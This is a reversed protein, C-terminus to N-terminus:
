SPHIARRSLRRTPHNALYWTPFLFSCYTSKGAGPPMCIMLRDIEGRGVAELKEILLRHHAAPTFRLVPLNPHPQSTDDPTASPDSGGNTVADDGAGSAIAILEADSLDKYEGERKQLTVSQMPKGWGRELMAVAATVRASGSAKPDLMVEELTEIAAMTRERAAEVVTRLM